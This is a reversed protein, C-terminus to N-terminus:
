CNKLLPHVINVYALLIHSRLLFCNRSNDEIYLDELNEYKKSFLTRCNLINSSWKVINDVKPQCLKYDGRSHM